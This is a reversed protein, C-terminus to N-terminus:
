VFRRKVLETLRQASDSEEKWQFRSRIEDLYLMSADATEFSNLQRIAEEYKDGSGAFLEAIFQFKDNIGIGAKLDARPVKPAVKAEENVQVVPQDDIKIEASPGIITEEKLDAVVTAEEVPLHAEEVPTTVELQVEEVVPVEVVTTNLQKEFPEPEPEPSTLDQTEKQEVIDTSTNATHNFVILKKYLAEVEVLLLEADGANIEVPNEFRASQAKISRILGSIENRIDPNNM